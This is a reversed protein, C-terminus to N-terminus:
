IEPDKSIVREQFSITVIEEEINKLHNLIEYLSKKLSEDRIDRIKSSITTIRGKDMKDFIRKGKSIMYRLGRDIEKSIESIIEKAVKDIKSGNEAIDRIVDGVNELKKGIILFSPISNVDKINSNSLVRIDTMAISCIKTILHSLRDIEIENHEIHDDVSNESIMELSSEMVLGIRYLTQRIDVKNKDLLNSIIITNSDEFTIETGSMYDILRSLRLKYQKRIESRSNIIIKEYGKYYCTMVIGEINKKYQELDLEIEASKLNEDLRQPSLLLNNNRTEKIQIESKERLENKQVWEKPLSISYTANAILQIKRTHM